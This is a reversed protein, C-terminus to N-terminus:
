GSWPAPKSFFRPFVDVVNILTRYNNNQQHTVRHKENTIILCIRTSCVQYKRRFSGAAALASYNREPSRLSTRSREPSMTIVRSPKNWVQMLATQQVRHHRYIKRQDEQSCPNTKVKIKKKKKSSYLCILFHLWTDTHLTWNHPRVLVCQKGLWVSWMAM